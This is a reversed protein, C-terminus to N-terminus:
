DIPVCDCLGGTMPCRTPGWLRDVRVCDVCVSCGCSMDTPCLHAGALDVGCLAIRGGSCVYHKTGGTMVYSLDVEAQAAPQTPSM